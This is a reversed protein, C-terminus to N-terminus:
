QKLQCKVSHLTKMLRPCYAMLWAYCYDSKKWHPRLKAYKKQLMAKYDKHKEAYEFELKTIKNLLFEVHELCVDHYKGGTFEDYMKRGEIYREHYDRIKDIPQSWFRNTWSGESQWRYCSLMDDIYYVPGKSAFFFMMSLDGMMYETFEPKYNLFARHEDTRFFYTSTQFSYKIIMRLFERQSKIGASLEYNPLQWGIPKDNGDLVNSRGVCLRCEPHAELADVQKQLKLPDTWYDDCEALATYKGRTLPLVFHKKIGTHKSYQNERQYVSRILDPHKAEYERIIAATEDTSADDHVIIEYRFDTKQMLFGDLAQRIYRAHNYALAQVTVMVPREDESFSM